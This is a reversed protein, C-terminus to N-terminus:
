QMGGAQLALNVAVEAGKDDFVRLGFNQQCMAMLIAMVPKADDLSDIAFENGAICLTM